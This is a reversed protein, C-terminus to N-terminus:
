FKLSGKFFTLRSYCLAGHAGQVHDLECKIYITEIWQLNSNMKPFGNREICEAVKGARKAM